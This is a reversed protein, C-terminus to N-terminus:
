MFFDIMRLFTWFGILFDEVIGSSKIMLVNRKLFISDM